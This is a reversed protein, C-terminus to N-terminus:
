AGKRSKGRSDREAERTIIRDIAPGLAYYHSVAHRVAAAFSPLGEREQIHRVKDKDEATFRIQTQRTGEHPM